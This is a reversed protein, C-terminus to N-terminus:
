YPLGLKLPEYLWVLTAHQQTFGLFLEKRDRHFITSDLSRVLSLPHNRPPHRVLLYGRLGEPTRVATAWQHVKNLSRKWPAQATRFWAPCFTEM